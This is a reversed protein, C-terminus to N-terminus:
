SLPPWRGPPAAEAETEGHARPWDTEWAPCHCSTPTRPAQGGGLSCRPGCRSDCGSSSSRLARTQQSSGTSSSHSSGFESYKGEVVASAWRRYEERVKKNLVCLLLFLFLGQLGSLLSFAYSLPMSHPDFLFLGFVWTGGLVVLQAVATVTLVRARGLRKMDPNIESFKQALKWVTTVFIVANCLIIFALPGVFSWLFGRKLSLWCYSPRGYGESYVAASVAVVLLPVGYGLLCQWRTRLGQGRFVRVVLFYLELGELSMWCFAALFCYHLLAAVLRCRLGVPPPPAEGPLAPGSGRVPPAELSWSEQCAPCPTVDQGGETNNEVGALFLASGVFLCLCLHLHVTTRSSQISRVLLFTLICLLLCVLSLSLGVKTILALRPDQIHYHAMLIAFSSLHRCQCITIGDKSDVKRCGETSWHGSRNGDEGKWFACIVEDRPGPMERSHSFNFTVPYALEGTKTNTLFVSNISSLFRFQVGLVPSEYTEELSALRGELDLSTNTLWNKMNQSSLIGAVTPGNRSPENGTAVAWSLTMQAQGHGITINGAPQQQQEQVMLFLATSSDSTYNFSGAPLAQALSRLMGEMGLLLQTAIRHRAPLDLREMDGPAELLGDLAKILNQIADATDRATHPQFDRTLNQVEELFTALATSHIGPPATWTPFVVESCATKGPLPRWGPLCRCRYSGVTNVCVASSHCQHQGSRCEDVDECQTHTPGEPSGLIPRWGRRCRCEYGGAKNLCHASSHCNHHGSTCENVDQCTNESENRFIKDGSELAYGPSCTCYYSGETNECDAFKGCYTRLPPACENIDDCSGDPSTILEEVSSFGADCRCTDASLCKSNRPCWRACGEQKQAAAGCLSLVTCLVVLAPRGLGAM